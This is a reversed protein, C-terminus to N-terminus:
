PEDGPDDDGDDEPEDDLNLTQEDDSPVKVVGTALDVEVGKGFWSELDKELDIPLVTDGSRYELARRVLREAEAVDDPAVPEIRLIRVVPEQEGTENNGTYKPSDILALVVRRRLPENLLDRAISTLGNKTADKPLGSAM